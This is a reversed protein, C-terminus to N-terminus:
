RKLPLVPARILVNIPDCRVRIVLDADVLEADTTDRGKGVAVVHDPAREPVVPREQVNPRRGEAATGRRDAAGDAGGVAGDPLFRARLQLRNNHGISIAGEEGAEEAFAAASYSDARLHATKCRRQVRDGVRCGDQLVGAQLRHAQRADGVTSVAAPRNGHGRRGAVRGQDRMGADAVGAGTRRTRQTVGTLAARQRYRRGVSVRSGRVSLGAKSGPSSLARRAAGVMAAEGPPNM